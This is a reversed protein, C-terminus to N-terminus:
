LCVEQNEKRGINRTLMADLRAVLNRVDLLLCPGRYPPAPEATM